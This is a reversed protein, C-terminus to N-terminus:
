YALLDGVVLFFVCAGVGFVHVHVPMFTTLCAPTSLLIFLRVFGTIPSVNCQLSLQFHLTMQQRAQDDLIIMRSCACSCSVCFVYTCVCMRVIRYMFVNTCVCACVHMCVSVCVAHLFVCASM